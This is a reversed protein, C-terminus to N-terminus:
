FRIFFDSSISFFVTIGQFYVPLIPIRAKKIFKLMSHQMGQRYDSKKETQFQESEGAPIDGPSTREDHASLM